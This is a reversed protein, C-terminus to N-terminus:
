GVMFTTLVMGNIKYVLKGIFAEMDLCTHHRFIQKYRRLSTILLPSLRIHFCFPPFTFIFSTLLDPLPLM